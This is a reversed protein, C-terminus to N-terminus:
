LFIYSSENETDGVIGRTPDPHEHTSVASLLMSRPCHLVLIKWVFPYPLVLYESVIDALRFFIAAQLHRSESGSCATRDELTPQTNFHPKNKLEKTDIYICKRCGNNDFNFVCESTM